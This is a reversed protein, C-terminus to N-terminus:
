RDREERLLKVSDTRRRGRLCRRIKACMQRAAEMDVVQRTAARTLIMRVESQLSRGHSRAHAKLRSVVTEDLDRVLIQGM